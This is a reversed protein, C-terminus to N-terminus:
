LKSETYKACMAIIQISEAALKTASSQLEEIHGLINQKDNNKTHHWVGILEFEVREIESLAEEYEEKIIAYAEHTSRFLPFKKNADILEQQALMTVGNIIKLM